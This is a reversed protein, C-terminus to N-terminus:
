DEEEDDLEEGIINLEALEDQDDLLDDEGLDADIDDNEMIDPEVDDEDLTEDILKEDNEEEDDEDDGDIGLEIIHHDRVDWCGNDLMVFRKDLTLSTYYDGIKSTYEDDSYNLLGCIEKFIDPTLMPKKNEKLIEYTLDTHSMLEIEEKPIKNLKM